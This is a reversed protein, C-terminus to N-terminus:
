FYGEEWKEKGAFKWQHILMKLGNVEMLMNECIFGTLIFAFQGYTIFEEPIRRSHIQQSETNLWLLNNAKKSIVLFRFLYILCEQSINSFM